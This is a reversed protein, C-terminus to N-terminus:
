KAYGCCFGANWTLNNNRETGDPYVVIFGEEEAKETMETVREIITANGGGFHLVVVLPILGNYGTPVYLYYNRTIGDCGLSEETVGKVDPGRTECGSWLSVVFLATLVAANIKM